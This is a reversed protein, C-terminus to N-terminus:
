VESLVLEPGNGGPHEKSAFEMHNWSNNKINLTISGSSRYADVASADLTIEVWQNATYPSSWDPDISGIESGRIKKFDGEGHGNSKEWKRDDGPQRKRYKYCAAGSEEQGNSTGEYWSANNATHQMPYISLKSHGWGSTVYLRLKAVGVTFNVGSLSFGVLGTREDNGKVVMTTAGGYCKKDHSGGKWLITDGLAAITSDEDGSSEEPTAAAVVKTIYNLNFHQVDQAVIVVTGGNYQRTLTGGSGGSWTYKISEAMGDGDRDPVKFAVTTSTRETFSQALGLDTTIDSVVDRAQYTHESAAINNYSARSAISMVSVMGGMLTATVGVSVITEMLSFGRARRNLGPRPMPKSKGTPCIM